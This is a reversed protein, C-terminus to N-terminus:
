HTESSQRLPSLDVGGISVVVAAIIGQEGEMATALENAKKQLIWGSAANGLMMSKPLWTQTVSRMRHTSETVVAEVQVGKDTERITEVEHLGSTFRYVPSQQAKAEHQAQKRKLHGASVACKHDGMPEVRDRDLWLQQGEYAALVSRPTIRMVDIEVLDHEEM